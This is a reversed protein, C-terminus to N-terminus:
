HAWLAEPYDGQDVLKRLGAIVAPKDDPYTVGLWSSPAQLVEVSARNQDMLEQVLSPLYYEGKVPDKLGSLFKKFGLIGHEFLEPTFGWMNMSVTQTGDMIEVVEGRKLSVGQEVPHIEHCEEIGTLAGEGNVCCLGRSVTGHDSLTNNMPFGVLVYEGTRQIRTRLAEALIHFSASGYFDDANIVGFPEKVSNRCALMAQTTGWPKSRGEPLTFGVPLDELSQFAYEVAIRGEYKAGVSERFAVEIDKRIVFVVKGFGARIADYVSYDLITEGSPGVPDIQKLGGYRSGMGAALVVLSPETM